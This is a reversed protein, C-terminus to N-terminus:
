ALAHAENVASSDWVRSLQKNIDSLEAVVLVGDVFKYIFSVYSCVGSNHRM